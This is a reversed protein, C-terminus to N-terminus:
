NGRRWPVKDPAPPVVYRGAGERRPFPFKGKGVPPNAKLAALKAEDIEIGFGPADGLVIHGDEIFSSFKLCHERGPG